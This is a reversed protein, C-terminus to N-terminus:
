CGWWVFCFVYRLALYANTLNKVGAPDVGAYTAALTAVAFLPFSEMGNQHAADARQARAVVNPPARLAKSDKAMNHRGIKNDWIYGGSGLVGMKIAHPAFAIAWAYVISWIADSQSM